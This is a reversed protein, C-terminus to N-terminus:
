EAAAAPTAARKYAATRVRVEVGLKALLDILADVSFLDVRGRMIDSIRPQTVGLRKALSAQSRGSARLREQLDILLAGRIRMHAAEAPSKEIADWVSTYTKTM